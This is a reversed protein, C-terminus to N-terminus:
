YSTGKESSLFMVPGLLRTIDWSWVMNPRSALLEPKKYHPHRLQNRRERVEGEKELIRYMTRWHCLYMGDDELLTAWVERPAADQFRPSNLVERVAAREEESLGRRVERTTEGPLRGAISDTLMWGGAERQQRRRYLTSRVVGLMECAQRLGIREGLEQVM